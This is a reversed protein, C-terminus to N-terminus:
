KKEIRVIDKMLESEGQYLVVKNGGDIIYSNLMEKLSLEIEDDKSVVVFQNGETWRMGATLLVDEM